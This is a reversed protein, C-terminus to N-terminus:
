QQICQTRNSILCTEKVQVHLFPQHQYNPSCWVTSKKPKKAPNIMHRLRFFKQQLAKFAITDTTNKAKKFHFYATYLVTRKM